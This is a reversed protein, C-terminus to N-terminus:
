PPEVTWSESELKVKLDDLTAKAPKLKWEADHAALEMDPNSLVMIVQNAKLVAGARHDIRDVRCDFAAPIWVIEEPTLRGLGRSASM